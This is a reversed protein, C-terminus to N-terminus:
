GGLSMRIDLAVTSHYQFSLVSFISFFAHGPAVKDVVFGVYLSGPAFGTRVLPLGAVLRRLCPMAVAICTTVM